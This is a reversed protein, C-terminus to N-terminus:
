SESTTISGQSFVIVCGQDEGDDPKNKAVAIVSSALILSVEHYDVWNDVEFWGKM